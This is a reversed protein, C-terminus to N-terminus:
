RGPRQRAGPRHAPLPLEAGRLVHLVVPLGRGAHRPQRHRGLGAGSEAHGADPGEPHLRDLRRQRGHAAPASLQRRRRCPHAGRRDRPPAINGQDDAFVFNFMMLDIKQVERDFAAADPATLLGEIGIVPALVEADTSRLVLVKDGEPGLGPHDSIVPGRRTFRLKLPTNAFAAPRGGQGQRPDIETVVEFPVSRGADLYRNPDAPDLTEIYLDQVDGYANTVGFAVHKTRGVLIGPM